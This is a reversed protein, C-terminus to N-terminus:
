GVSEAKLELVRKIFDLSIREAEDRKFKMFHGDAHISISQSLFLQLKYYPIAWNFHSNYKRFHVIIGKPRLEINAHAISLRAFHEFFIESYSEIVMRPSGVRKLAIRNFLGYPKGVLENCAEIEERRKMSAEFVM